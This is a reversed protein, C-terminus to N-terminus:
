GPERGPSPWRGVAAGMKPDRRGRLGDSPGRQNEPTVCRQLWQDGDSLWRERSFTLIYLDEVESNLVLRRRLCGEVEFLTGIGSKFQELYRGAAEAYLNRLAFKVFLYNAFLVAGELPWVRMQFEPVLIMSVYAYGHITNANYATLLGVGRGSRRDEVAFSCLTRNWVGQYFTEPTEPGPWMWPVQNTTALRYLDDLFERTPPSLRTRRSVLPVPRATPAAM